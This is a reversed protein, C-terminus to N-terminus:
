KKTKPKTTKSEEAKQTEEAEDLLQYYRDFVKMAIAEDQEIILMSHGDEDFDVLFVIAEDDAVGELEDIPKLIAYINDNEPIIAVQEFKVAKDEENYLTIPDDNNEDLLLDLIDEEEEELIEKDKNKAMNVEM